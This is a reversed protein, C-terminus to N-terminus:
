GNALNDLHKGLLGDGTPTGLAEDGVAIAGADGGTGGELAAGGIVLAVGGRGADIAVAHVWALAAQIGLAAEDVVMRQADAQLAEVAGVRLPAALGHAAPGVVVAPAIM